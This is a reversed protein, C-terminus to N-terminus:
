NDELVVFALSSTDGLERRASTRRHAGRLVDLPWEFVVCGENDQVTELIAEAIAETSCVAVVSTQCSDYVVWVTSM